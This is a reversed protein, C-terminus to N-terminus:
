RAPLRPRLRRAAACRDQRRHRDAAGAQSCFCGAAAGPDPRLGGDGVGEEQGGKHSSVQTLSSCWYIQYRQTQWCGGAHGSARTRPASAATSVNFRCNPSTCAKAGQNESASSHVRCRWRCLAAACRYVQQLMVGPPVVVRRVMRWQKDGAGDEESEITGAWREGGGVRLSALKTAWQALVVEQLPPLCPQIHDVCQQATSAKCWQVSTCVLWRDFVRRHLTCVCCSTKGKWSPMVHM